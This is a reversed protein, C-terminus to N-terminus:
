SLIDTNSMNNNHYDILISYIVLIYANIEQQVKLGM